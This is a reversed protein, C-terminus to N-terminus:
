LGAAACRYGAQGNEDHSRVRTQRGEPNTTSGTLEGINEPNIQWLLGWRDRIWGCQEEKSGHKLITNWLRDIEQQDACEIVFSVAHNFPDLPGAQMAQWAHGGM